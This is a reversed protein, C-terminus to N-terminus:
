GRFCGMFYITGTQIDSIMFLFPRDAIFDYVKSDDPVPAFDKFEAVTSSAASTGNENVDIKSKQLMRSIFSVDSSMNSFDAVNFASRIGLKEMIGILDIATESEFRPFLLNVKETRFSNTFEQWSDYNFCLLFEDISIGDDPMILTMVFVGKGYPLQVMAANESKGYRLVDVRSLMSTIFSDSDTKYFPKNVIDSSDFPFSWPGEFSLANVLYVSGTADDLIYPIMGGTHNSVWNNIYNVTKQTDNIDISVTKADYYDAVASSYEESIVIDNRAVVVNANSVKVEPDAAMGRYLLNLCFHNLEDQNDGFGLVETIEERTTGSGGQAMMGLAMTVSLPSFVFSENQTEAIANLLHFTFANNSQSMLVQKTSLNLSADKINM